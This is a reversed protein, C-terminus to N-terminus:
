REACVKKTPRQGRAGRCSESSTVVEDYIAVQEQIWLKRDYCHRRDLANQSLQQWRSRDLYPVEMARVLTDINIDKVWRVNSLVLGDRGDRVLDSCGRTATTIVPVGMALSEMVNVPLGERESPFVSVHSLALYKQVDNRWGIQLIGAHRQLMQEEPATLGAPHFTDRVGVLLLRTDPHRQYMRFFARVVAAFGKFAVQRGVFIYVFETGSLGLSSRLSTLEEESVATRDFRSLDCGLAHTRYRHFSGAMRQQHVYQPDMENVLYIADMRSFAWREAALLVLRSAGRMQVSNIGHITGLTPAVHKLGGLAAAFVAAANHAHIVNPSIARAMRRLRLAARPYGWPNMGRPLKLPHLTTQINGEHSLEPIIHQARCILHVDWGVRGLEESLERLFFVHTTISPTIFLIRRKLAMSEHM